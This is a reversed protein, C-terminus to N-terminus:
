NEYYNIKRHDIAKVISTKGNRNYTATQTREIWNGHVDFKYDSYFNKTIGNEGKINPFVLLEEIVNGKDDFKFALRSSIKNEEALLKNSLNM